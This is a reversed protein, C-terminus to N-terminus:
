SALDFIAKIKLLNFLFNAHHDVNKFPHLCWSLAAEGAIASGDHV